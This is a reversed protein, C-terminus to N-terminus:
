DHLDSKPFFEAQWRRFAAYDVPEFLGTFPFDPPVLRWVVGTAMWQFWRGGAVCGFDYSPNTPVISVRGDAVFEM